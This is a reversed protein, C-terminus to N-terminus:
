KGRFALISIVIIIILVIIAFIMLPSLGIGAQVTKTAVVDFTISNASDKYTGVVYYRYPVNPPKPYYKTADSPLCMRYSVTKKAVAPITVNMTRKAIDIDSFSNWLSSGDGSDHFSLEITIPDYNLNTLTVDINDCQGLGMSETKKNTDMTWTANLGLAAGTLGIGGTGRILQSITFNVVITQVTSNYCTINFLNSGTHGLNNSDTFLTNNAVLFEGSQGNVDWVCTYNGNTGTINLVINIVTGGDYITSVPSYLTINISPILVTITINNSFSHTCNNQDCASVRISYSGTTSANVTWNFYTNTTNGIFREESLHYGDSLSINYFIPFGNPSSSANWTINISDLGAIFSGGTPNTIVPSTPPLILTFSVNSSNVIGVGTAAYIILLNSNPTVNFTVNRCNPLTINPSGNLSYSCNTIDNSVTYNMSIITDNDGHYYTTNTPSQVSLNGAIHVLTFPRSLAFSTQSSNDIATVRIVYQTPTNFTFNTSNWVYYLNPYNNEIITSNFSENANLLSINYSVIAFENPSVSMIYTINILGDGYSTNKPNTLAPASPPLGGAELLDPRIDSCNQGYSGNDLYGNACVYYYLSENGQYQHLHSDLTGSLNLWTTGLDTTIQTADVRSVNSIYWADWIAATTVPVFIFYSTPTVKVISGNAYGSTANVPFSVVHHSSYQSHTHNFPVTPSLTFTNDCFPSFFPDGTVYSSNCYWVQISGISTSNMNVELFSFTSSNSVNLFQVKIAYSTSLMSFNLHPTTEMDDEPFNYIAPYVENDDMTFSWNITQNSYTVGATQFGSSRATGNVFVIQDTISNNTKYYFVVSDNDYQITYNAQFKSKGFLNTSSIDVPYQNIYTILLANIKITFYVTSSTSNQPFTDQCIVYVHNSGISVNALNFRTLTNNSVSGLSVNATDNLSYWCLSSTAIDDIITINLDIQNTPSSVFITTNTPYSLNISPPNDIIETFFTTNTANQPLSDQCTIGITHSGSTSFNIYEQYSSGNNVNSISVNASNDVSKWCTMISATDDTVTFNLKVLTSRSSVTTTTNLPSNITIIPPSDITATVNQPSGFSMSELNSPYDLFVKMNDSESHYIYGSDYQNFFPKLLTDNGLSTSNFLIYPTTTDNDSVKIYGAYGSSGIVKLKVDYTVNVLFDFDETSGSSCLAGECKGIKWSPQWLSGWLNTSLGSTVTTDKWGTGSYPNLVLIIDRWTTKFYFTLGDERTFNQDTMLVMKDWGGGTGATVNLIDNQLKFGVSLNIIVFKSLNLSATTFDDAFMYATNFRSTNEVNSNNWYFWITYLSNNAIFDTVRVDVITNGTPSNNVIYYNLPNSVNLSINFFRLSSLNNSQSYNFNTDNLVLRFTFNNSGKWTNNIIVNNKKTWDTLFVPPSEPSGLQQTVPFFMKKASNVRQNQPYLSKPLDVNIKFTQNAYLDPDTNIFGWGTSISFTENRGLASDIAMSEGIGTGNDVGTFYSTNYQGAKSIDQETTNQATQFFEFLFSIGANPVHAWSDDSRWTEVGIWADHRTTGYYFTFIETPHCSASTAQSLKYRKVFTGNYLHTLTWVTAHIDVGCFRHMGDWGYNPSVPSTENVTPDQIFLQRIGNRQTNSVGSCLWYITSTTNIKYVCDSFFGVTGDSEKIGTFTYAVAGTKNYYIWYDSTNTTFNIVFIAFSDNNSAWVGSSDEYLNSGNIIEFNVNENLGTRNTIIRIDKYGYIKPINLATLNITVVEDPRYISYVDNFTMQIRNKYSTDWWDTAHVNMAM